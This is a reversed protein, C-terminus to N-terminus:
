VGDMSCHTHALFHHEYWLLAKSVTKYIYIRKQFAHGSFLVRLISLVICLFPVGYRELTRCQHKCNINGTIRKLTYRKQTLKVKMVCYSDKSHIVAVSNSYFSIQWHNAEFCTLMVEQIELEIFTEFTTNISHSTDM